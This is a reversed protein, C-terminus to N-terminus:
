SKINVFDFVINCYTIYCSSKSLEVAICHIFHYQTKVYNYLDTSQSTPHDKQGQTHYCIQTTTGEM